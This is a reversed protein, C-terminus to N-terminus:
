YLVTCHAFGRFLFFDLEPWEEVGTAQWNDATKLGDTNMRYEQYEAYKYENNGNEIWRDKETNQLKYKCQQGESIYITM